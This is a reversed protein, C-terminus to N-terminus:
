THVSMYQESEFKAAEIKEIVEFANINCQIGNSEAFETIRTIKEMINEIGVRATEMMTKQNEIAILTGHLQKLVVQYEDSVRQLQVMCYEKGTTSVGTLHEM